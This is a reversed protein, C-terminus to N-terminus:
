RTRNGAHTGSSLRRSALAASAFAFFLNYGGCVGDVDLMEGLIYLNPYRKASFDEDVESLEIGGHCVQAGELPYTDAIPFSFRQIPFPKQQYLAALKPHLLGTVAAHHRLYSPIDFHEDWYTLNIELRCNRNSALRRYHASLNMIVIGSVGDEKFTIEGFEKHILRNDQFLSVIAKTRCGSLSKPYCQLKFGALSSQLVNQKLSISQLHHNYDKQNKPIMGAPSGTALVLAEFGTPYNNIWWKDKQYVINQVNYETEISVNGWSFRTLVDVVTQSFQSAPYVRGEEDSVTVLGWEDFQRELQPPAFRQLLREICQPQNYHEPRIDRNFINAKGGGSARIKAGVQRNKEFITVRFRRDASLKRAFFLGSAGAGVVAVHISSSM